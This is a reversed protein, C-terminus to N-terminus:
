KGIAIPHQAKSIYTSSIYVELDVIGM